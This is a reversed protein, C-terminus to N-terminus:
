RQLRSGQERDDVALTGLPYKQEAEEWARNRARQSVGVEDDPHLGQYSEAELAALVQEDYSGDEKPRLRDLDIRLRRFQAATRESLQAKRDWEYVLAWLSGLTQLLGLTGTILVLATPMKKDSYWILAVGGGLLPVAIGLFTLWKLGRKALRGDRFIIYTQYTRVRAERLRSRQNLPDAM